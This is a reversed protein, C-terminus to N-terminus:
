GDTKHTRKKWLIFAAAAGAVVLVGVAILVIGYAPFGESGPEEAPSQGATTNQSGATATGATEGAGTSQAPQTPEESPQTQLIDDPDPTGPEAPGVPGPEVPEPDVPAPDIPAPDAPEAPPTYEENLEDIRQQLTDRAAILDKQTIDSRELIDQAALLAKMYNNWRVTTYNDEEYSWIAEDVLDQLETKNIQVNFFYDKYIGPDNKLAARITVRGSDLFRVRATYEHEATNENTTDTIEAKGDELCSWVVTDDEGAYRVTAVMDPVLIFGIDRVYASEPTDEQGEYNTDAITVNLYGEVVRYTRTVNMGSNARLSATVQVEGAATGSLCGEADIGAQGGTVSWEVQDSQLAATDEGMRLMATLPLKEGIMVMSLDSEISMDAQRIEVECASGQGRATASVKVRGEKKPTLRGSADIDAISTDSVKWEYRIDSTANRTTVKMDTAIQLPVVDDEYGTYVRLIEFNGAAAAPWVGWACCLVCLSLFVALIRKQIPSVENEENLAPIGIM